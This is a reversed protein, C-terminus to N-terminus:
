QMNSAADLPTTKGRHRRAVIILNNAPLPYVSVNLGARILHDGVWGLDKYGTAPDEARLRADFAADGESTAMGDRLYPGYFLAVGNPGLARASETLLTAAATASILHLLNVLLIADRDPWHASWGSRAADLVVPPRLNPAGTVRAWASISTLNAPNFDTPQWDLGPLALAFEAAHQGTGAAIELLRGRPAVEARLVALIPAANRANSPSIHRGDATTETWDYPLEQQM